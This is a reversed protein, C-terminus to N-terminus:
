ASGGIMDGTITLTTLENAAAISGSFSGVGGILSGRITVSALRAKSIIAGSAENEVLTSFSGGRVDGTIVVPGMDLLSFVQGSAEGSSGILSGGITV